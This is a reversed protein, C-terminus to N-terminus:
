VCKLIGNIVDSRYNNRRFSRRGIVQFQENRAITRVFLTNSKCGNRVWRASSVLTVLGRFSSLQLSLHQNIQHQSVDTKRHNRDIQGESPEGQDRDNENFRQVASSTVMERKTTREQRLGDRIPKRGYNTNWQ